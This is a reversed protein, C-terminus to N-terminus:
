PSPSLPPPAASATPGARPALKRPATPRPRQQPGTSFDLLAPLPSLICSTSCLWGELAAWPAAQAAAGMDRVWTARRRRLQPHERGPLRAGKARDRTRGTGNLSDAPKRAGGAAPACEARGGAAGGQLGAGLGACTLCNRGIPILPRPAAAGQRWRQRRRRREKGVSSGSRGGAAAAHLCSRGCTAWGERSHRAPAPAAPRNQLRIHPQAAPWVPCLHHPQGSAQAAAGQGPQTGAARQSAGAMCVCAAGCGCARPRGHCAPRPMFATPSSGSWGPMPPASM